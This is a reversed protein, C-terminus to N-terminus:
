LVFPKRSTLGHNEIRRKEIGLELFFGMMDHWGTFRLAADVVM